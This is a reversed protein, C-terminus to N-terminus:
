SRVLSCVFSRVIHSICIKRNTEVSFCWNSGISLIASFHHRILVYSGMFSFIDFFNHFQAPSRFLFRRVLAFISMCTHKYMKTTRSSRVKRGIRCLLQAHTDTRKHTNHNPHLLSHPSREHVISILIIIILFAFTPDHTNAKQRLADAYDIPSTHFM